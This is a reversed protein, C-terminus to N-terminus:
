FYGERKRDEMATESFRDDARTAGRESIRSAAIERIIEDVSHARSRVAGTCTADGVTRFRVTEKYATEADGPTVWDGVALLMGDREVVERDHSYYISPLEIQERLIYQWIDLETWDSLPFVRLHEGARVTGQYLQWLEPRQRKPDWQGFADRFSLVREKARAKDEDRRAGGFAADFSNAGIADLLTTTQLRNRSASPGPDAVRGEDISDQVRAVLLRAGEAEVQADRYALVEPFNHGTDVHLVPFPIRGPKFAKAALHLLVASDKGGSFLLVPRESEAAVERIIFVALSELLDLHGLPRQAPRLLRTVSTPHRGATPAVPQGEISSNRTAATTEVPGRQNIVMKTM